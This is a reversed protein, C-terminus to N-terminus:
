CAPPSSLPSRTARRSTRRSRRRITRRRQACHAAHRSERPLRDLARRRAAGRLDRAGMARASGVLRLQQLPLRLWRRGDSRNRRLHLRADRRRLARRPRAGQRPRDSSAVRRAAGQLRRRLSLGPHRAGPAQAVYGDWYGLLFERASPERYDAGRPRGVGHRDLSRRSRGRLPRPHRGERRSRLRGPAGRRAARRKGYSQHRPRDDGEPRALGRGRRLRPDPRRRRGCRRRPLASRPPVPGQHRLSSGSGGTEHFPNVYVWDFNMAAIRPLEARWASVTGVLLPFLNYIRPGSALNSVRGVAAAASPKAPRM